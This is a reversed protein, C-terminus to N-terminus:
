RHLDDVHKSGSQRDAGNVKFPSYGILRRECRGRHVSQMDGIEIAAQRFQHVVLLISQYESRGLLKCRLDHYARGIDRDTDRGPDRGTDIEWYGEM